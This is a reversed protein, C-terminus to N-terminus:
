HKLSNGAQMACYFNLQTLEFESILKPSVAQNVRQILAESLKGDPEMGLTLQLLRLSLKTNTALACDFLLDAIAQSEIHECGLEQWVDCCYFQCVADCLEEPLESAQKFVRAFAQQYQAM